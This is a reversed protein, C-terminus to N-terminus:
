DEKTVASMFRSRDFNPNDYAFIDITENVTKLITDKSLNENKLLDKFMKAFEIYDKKSM